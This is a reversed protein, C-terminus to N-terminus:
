RDPLRRFLVGYPMFVGIGTQQYVDGDITTIIWTM